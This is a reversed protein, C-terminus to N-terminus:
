GKAKRHLGGLSDFEGRIKDIFVSMTQPKGTILNLYSKAKIPDSFDEQLVKKAVLWYIAWYKKKDDSSMTAKFSQLARAATEWSCRFNSLAFQIALSQESAARCQEIREILKWAVKGFKSKPNFRATPDNAITEKGVELDEILKDRDDGFPKRKSIRIPWSFLNRSIPLLFERHTAILSNLNEVHERVLRVYEQIAVPDGGVIPKYAPTTYPCSPSLGQAQLFLEHLAERAKVSPENKNKEWEALDHAVDSQSISQMLHEIAPNLKSQSANLKQSKM